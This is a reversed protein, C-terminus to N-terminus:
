FTGDKIVKQITKGKISTKIGVGERSIKIGVGKPHKLAKMAQTKTIEIYSKSTIVLNSLKIAGYCAKRKSITNSSIDIYILM